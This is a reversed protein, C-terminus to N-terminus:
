GGRLLLKEDWVYVEGCVGCATSLERKFVGGGVSIWFKSQQRGRYRSLAEVCCSNEGTPRRETSYFNAGCGSCIWRYRRPSVFSYETEIRWGSGRQSIDECGCVPCKLVDVIKGDYENHGM